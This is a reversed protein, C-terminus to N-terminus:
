AQASSAPACYKVVLTKGLVYVGTKCSRFHCLYKINELNGYSESGGTHNQKSELLFVYFEM